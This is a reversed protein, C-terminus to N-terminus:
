PPERRDYDDKLRVLIEESIEGYVGIREALAEVTPVEGTITGDWLEPDRGFSREDWVQVFFTELANDWGVVIRHQPEKGRFTYQSVILGGQNPVEQFYASNLVLQGFM